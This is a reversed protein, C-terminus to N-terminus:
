TSAKCSGGFSERMDTVTVIFPRGGTVIPAATIGITVALGMTNPTSRPRKGCLRQEQSAFRTDRGIIERALLPRALREAIGHKLPTRRILEVRSDLASIM